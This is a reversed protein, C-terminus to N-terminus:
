ATPGQKKHMNIHYNANVFGLNGTWVGGEGGGGQCGGAQERHTKKQKM